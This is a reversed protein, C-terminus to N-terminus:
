ARMGWLLFQGAFDLESTRLGTEHDNAPAAHTTRGTM